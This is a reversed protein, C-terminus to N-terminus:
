LDPRVQWATGKDRKAEELSRLRTVGRRIPRRNRVMAGLQRMRRLLGPDAPDLWLDRRAAEFTRFKKVPM